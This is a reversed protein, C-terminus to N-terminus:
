PSAGESVLRRIANVDGSRVVAAPDLASSRKQEATPPAIRETCRDDGDPDYSAEIHGAEARDALLGLMWCTINWFSAPFYGAVDITITVGDVVRLDRLKVASEELCGDANEEEIAGLAAQLASATGYRLQGRFTQEYSMRDRSYRRALWREAVGRCMRSTKWVSGARADGRM